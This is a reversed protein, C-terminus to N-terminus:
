TLLQIQLVMDSLVALDIHHHPSDFLRNINEEFNRPLIPCETKCIQMLRKEGPHALENLAFIVDFYSALFAALRHNVSVIDKRNVAKKIQADYSPLVGSLLHMNKEIIADKLQKPYPVSFRNKMTHFRANKDYLVKSFLVNHWLCTTYGGDAYFCEVTHELQKSLSNMDRYIIDIDIGEHLVCNDESEWYQNGIEMVNCYKSLITRRIDESLTSTLYVYVDYDSAADAKGTARSGGLVVAEVETQESLERFLDDIQM